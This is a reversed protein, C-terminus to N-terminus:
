HGAAAGTHTLWLTAGVLAIGGGILLLELASHAEIRVAEGFFTVIMILLVLKGLQHKLDELNRVNVVKARPRSARAPDPPAIFLEFLGVAFILLFTGLLYGDVIEVVHVITEDHLAGRAAADLTPDAYSRLHSIVFFTDTTALYFVALASVFSGLVALVVIFRSWLLVRAVGGPGHPEPSAARESPPVPEAV